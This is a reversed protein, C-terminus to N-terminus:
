FETFSQAPRPDVRRPEAAAGARDSKRTPRQRLSMAFRVATELALTKFWRWRERKFLMARFSQWRPMERRFGGFPPSEAFASGSSMVRWGGGAVRWEGHGVGFFLELFEKLAQALYAFFRGVDKLQDVQEDFLGVIMEHLALEVKDLAWLVQFVLVADKVKAHSM